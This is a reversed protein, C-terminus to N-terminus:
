ERGGRRGPKGAWEVVGARKRAISVAQQTVRYQAILEATSRTLDAGLLGHWGPVDRSALRYRGREARVILGRRILSRLGAGVRDRPLGTAHVIDATFRHGAAIAHLIANDRVKGLATPSPPPVFRPLATM